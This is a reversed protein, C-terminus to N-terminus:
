LARSIKITAAGETAGILTFVYNGFTVSQNNVTGLRVESKAQGVILLPSLEGGLYM